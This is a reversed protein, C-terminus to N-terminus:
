AGKEMEILKTLYDTSDFISPNKAAELMFGAIAILSEQMQKPAADGQISKYILEGCRSFARLIAEERAAKNELDKLRVYNTMLDTIQTTTNKYDKATYRQFREFLEKPVLMSLRKVNDDSM